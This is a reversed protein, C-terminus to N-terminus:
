YKRTLLQREEGSLEDCKDLIEDSFEGELVGSMIEDVFPDPDHGREVRERCGERVRRVLDRAVPHDNGIRDRIIKEVVEQRSGPQPEQHPPEFPMALDTGAFSNEEMCLGTVIM